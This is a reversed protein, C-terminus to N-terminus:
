VEIDVLKQLQLAPKLTSIDANIIVKEEGMATAQPLLGRILAKDNAAIAPADIPVISFFLDHAVTVHIADVISGDVM